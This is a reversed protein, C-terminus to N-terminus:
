VYVIVEYIVMNNEYWKEALKEYLFDKFPEYFPTNVLFVPGVNSPYGKPIAVLVEIAPLCRLEITIGKAEDVIVFKRNSNPILSLKFVKAIHAFYSDKSDIIGEKDVM